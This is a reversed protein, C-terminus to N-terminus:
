KLVVITPNLLRRPFMRAVGTAQDAQDALGRSGGCCLTLSAAEVGAPFSPAGLGFLHLPAELFSMAHTQLTSSSLFERALLMVWTSHLMCNQGIFWSPDSSTPPVMVMEWCLVILTTISQEKCKRLKLSLVFPQMSGSLIITQSLVDARISADACHAVQSVFVGM